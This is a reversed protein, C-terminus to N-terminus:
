IVELDAEKEVEAEDAAILSTNVIAFRDADYFKYPFCSDDMKVEKLLLGLKDNQLALRVVRTVTYEDGAKIWQDDPIKKPKNSDNICVVKM